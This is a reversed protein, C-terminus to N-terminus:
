FCFFIDFIEVKAFSFSIVENKLIENKYFYKVRFFSFMYFLFEDFVELSIVLLLKKM